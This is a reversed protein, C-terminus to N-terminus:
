QPGGGSRSLKIATEVTKIGERHHFIVSQISQLNGFTRSQLGQPPNMSGSVREIRECGGVSVRIQLTHGEESALTIKCEKEDILIQKDIPVQFYTRRRPIARDALPQVEDILTISDPKAYRLTRVVDFDEYVTTQGRVRAAFDDEGYGTIGIGKRVNGLNNEPEIGVLVPVNHAKHSRMYQRVPDEEEYTYRGSDVLWDEGYATILINLDDSQRHFDSLFSSKFFIYVADAISGKVPWKNRFITYGSQPYFRNILPPQRGKEGLSAVYRLYETSRSEEIGSSGLQVEVTDGVLPLSGDPKAVYAMFEYARAIVADIYAFTEEDKYYELTDRLERLSNLVYWHYGPSNEVHVGEPTFMFRIEDSIRKLALSRFSEYGSIEPFAAAATYLSVAQDFGHNTFRNFFDEDALVHVHQNLLDLILFYVDDSVLSDSKLVELLYLLRNVRLATAHDNWSFESPYDAALKNHFAWSRIISVAADLYKSDGRALYAAILYDIAWWQHHHFEWSTNGFPNQGWFDKQALRTAPFQPYDYLGELIMDGLPAKSADLYNGSSRLIRQDAPRKRLNAIAQPIPLARGESIIEWANVVVSSAIENWPEGHAFGVPIVLFATYVLVFISRRV